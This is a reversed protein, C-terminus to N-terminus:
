QAFVRYVKWAPDSRLIVQVEHSSVEKALESAKLMAEEGAATYVVYERTGGTTIVGALVSQNGGGLRRDILEEIVDLQRIEARSPFGRDNPERLPIIVGLRDPYEERGAISRLAINFRTAVPKGEHTGEAISWSKPISWDRIPGVAHVARARRRLIAAATFLALLILIFFLM